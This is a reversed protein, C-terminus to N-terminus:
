LIVFVSSLKKVMSVLAVLIHQVEGREQSPLELAMVDSLTKMMSKFPYDDGENLARDIIDRGATFMM